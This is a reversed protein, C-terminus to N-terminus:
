QHIRKRATLRTGMQALGVLLGAGRPTAWRALRLPLSPTLGLLPSGVGKAGPQAGAVGSLGHLGRGQLPPSGARLRARLEASPSDFPKPTPQRRM